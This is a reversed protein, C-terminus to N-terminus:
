GSRENGPGTLTYAVIDKWRDLAKVEGIEQGHGDIDVWFQRADVFDEKTLKSSSDAFPNHVAYFVLGPTDMGGVHLGAVCGLRRHKGTHTFMDYFSPGVRESGEVYPMVPFTVQIKGFLTQFIDTLMIGHNLATILGNGVVVVLTARSDRPLQRYAGRLVGALRGTAVGRSFVGTGFREPELVSKVEVFVTRGTPTIFQWDGVRGMHGNPEYESLTWGLARELYLGAVLENAIEWIPAVSSRNEARGASDSLARAPIGAFRRQYVPLLGHDRAFAAAGILLERWWAPSDSKTIRWLVWYDPTSEELGDFWSAKCFLLPRLDETFYRM